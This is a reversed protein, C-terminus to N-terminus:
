AEKTYARSAVPVMHRARIGQHVLRLNRGAFCRAHFWSRLVWPQSVHGGKRFIRRERWFRRSRSRTCRDIRGVANWVVGGNLREDAIGLCSLVEALAEFLGVHAIREERHEGAEASCHGWLQDRRMELTQLADFTHKASGRRRRRRSCRGCSLRATHSWSPTLHHLHLSWTCNTCRGRSPPSQRGAWIQHHPADTRMGWRDLGGVHDLQGRGLGLLLALDPLGQLDRELLVLAKAVTRRRLSWLVQEHRQEVRDAISAEILAGKLESEEGGAWSWENRELAVDVLALRVRISRLRLWLRRTLWMRRRRLRAGCWVSLRGRTGGGGCGWGGSARVIRRGNGLVGLRLRCRLCTRSSACAPGFLFRVFLLTGWKGEARVSWERRQRRAVQLCLAIVRIRWVCRKWRRSVPGKQQTRRRTRWQVREEPGRQGRRTLWDREGRGEESCWNSRRAATATITERPVRKRIREGCHRHTRSRRTRSRTKRTAGRCSLSTLAAQQSRACSHRREQLRHTPWPRRRKTCRRWGRRVWWHTCRSSCCSDQAGRCRCQPFTCFLFVWETHEVRSGITELNHRLHRGGKQYTWTRM